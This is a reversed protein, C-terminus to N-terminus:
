FVPNCNTAVYDCLPKANSILVLSIRINISMGYFFPAFICSKSSIHLYLKCKSSYIHKQIIYNVHTRYLCKSNIYQYVAFHVSFLIFFVQM